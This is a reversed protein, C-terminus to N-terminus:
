RIAELWLLWGEARVSETKRLKIWKDKAGTTGSAQYMQGRGRAKAQSM